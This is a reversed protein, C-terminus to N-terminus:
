MLCLSFMSVSLLCVSISCDSHSVSAGWTLTRTSFVCDASLCTTLLYSRGKSWVCVCVGLHPQAVSKLQKLLPQYCSTIQTNKAVCVCMVQLVNSVCVYVCPKDSQSWGVQEYRSWDSPKRSCKKTECSLIITEYSLIIAEPSGLHESRSSERLISFVQCICVHLKCCLLVIFPYEKQRRAM